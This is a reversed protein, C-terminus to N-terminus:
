ASITVRPQDAGVLSPHLPLGQGASGTGHCRCEGQSVPFLGCERQSEPGATARLQQNPGQYLPSSRQVGPETALTPQQEFAPPFPNSCLEGCKDGPRSLM